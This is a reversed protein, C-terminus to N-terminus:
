NPETFDINRLGLWQGIFNEAFANAKPDDLMREVQQRLVVPDKLKGSEALRLLPEDPMSSWLFYSLRSALAFDDLPGPQERLFLFDDSVLAALLAVRLAEEFTYKQKLKTQFVQLYPQIDKEAITRRFARRLFHQLVKRADEDPHESVVERY